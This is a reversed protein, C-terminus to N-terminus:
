SAKRLLHKELGDAAADFMNWMQDEQQGGQVWVKLLYEYFSDGDAGFTIKGKGNMFCNPWLGDISPKERVTDYFKNVKDAFSPDGTIRSLHRMELQCTGSEALSRCQSGGNGGGFTYPSVGNAGVAAIMRRGLQLSMDLFVQDGSLDYASLLGGFTRIGTEFMSTSGGLGRLKAPLNGALWNKAENFEERLGMIWLTDLADVMTVAHHFKLEFGRGSM